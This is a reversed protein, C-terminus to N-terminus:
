AELLWDYINKVIVGSDTYDNGGVDNLLFKKGNVKIRKLSNKKKLFTSGDKVTKSFINYFTYVNKCFLIYSPSYIFIANILM